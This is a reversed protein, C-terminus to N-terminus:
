HDYEKGVCMRWWGGVQANPAFAFLAYEYRPTADHLREPPVQYTVNWHLSGHAKIVADLFELVTGGKFSLTIPQRMARVDNQLFEDRQDTYIPHRVVCDPIFVRHAEFTAHLPVADKLEIPGARRNLFHNPDAFATKPRVHIVGNVSRWEYDPHLMMLTDLAKGVTQGRAWGGFETRTYRDDADLVTEFGILVGSARAISTLSETLAMLTSPLRIEADPGLVRDEPPVIQRGQAALSTLAVAALLVPLLMSRNPM